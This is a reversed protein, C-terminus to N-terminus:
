DDDGISVNMDESYGYTPINEKKKLLNNLKEYWSRTSSTSSITSSSDATISSIESEADSDSEISVEDLDLFDENNLPKLSEFNLSKGKYDNDWGWKSDPIKFQNNNQINGAMQNIDNFDQQDLTTGDSALIDVPGDFDLTEDIDTDSELDSIDVFHTSQDHGEIPCFDWDPGTVLVKVTEDDSFSNPMDLYTPGDPDDKYEISSISRPDATLVTKLLFSALLTTTLTKM